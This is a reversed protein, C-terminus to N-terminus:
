EDDTRSLKMSAKLSDGAPLSLKDGWAAGREVCIFQRYNASGIDKMNAALTEGPNWVIATSANKGTIYLCPSRDPATDNIVQTSPVSEYVRDVEGSFKIKTYDTVRKNQDVTDVYEHEELGAVAVDNIDSVEFYTHLAWTLPLTNGSLNEFELDIRIDKGLTFKAEIAFPDLCLDAYQEQWQFRFLLQAEGSSAFQLDKLEWPHNRVFGHKPFDEETPHPGFWPACIPVGGRIAKGEEYIALPSCWLWNKDGTPKFSLLQAGQASFLATFLRTEIRILPLGPAVSNFEVVSDTLVAGAAEASNSAKIAAMIQEQVVSSM